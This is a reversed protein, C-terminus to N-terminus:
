ESIRKKNWSKKGCKPCKMYRTRGIHMAYLVSKFTPVYRHNCKQCEYFGALQEIKLFVIAMNIIFVTSLLIILTKINEQISASSVIIVIGIFVILTVIGVEIELNLLKKDVKEKQKKLEIIQNELKKENNEM